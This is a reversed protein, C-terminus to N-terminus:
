QRYTVWSQQMRAAQGVTFEYMCADDTYDMFNHIPDPGDGRCSDQGAPCGYAASREPATDAVYDGNGRCGGQFTHYLGLWHGVEHTGTDGQNYPAASGGPISTNLIVVGDDSPDSSYWSPFTAWGLYGGGPSTFYVNLANSGGERLAIKMQREASTDPGATYWSSNETYDTGATFFSFGYSAYAANLVDLQGKIAGSTLNGAGGSTIVHWYVPIAASFNPDTGPDTGGGDGGGPKGPTGGKGSEMMGFLELEIMEREMEDPAHSACRRGSEVFAEKSAWEVGGFAFSDAEFALTPTEREIHRQGFAPLATLALMTILISLKSSTKM